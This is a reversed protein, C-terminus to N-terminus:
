QSALAGNAYYREDAVATMSGMLIGDHDYLHLVGAGDGGVGAGGGAALKNNPTIRGSQSSTFLEPGQEGVLYVGGAKVRGGGALLGDLGKGPKSSGTNEHTTINRIFTKITKGNLRNLRSEVRNAEAIAQPGGLLKVLTRLEKPTLDYQRKLKRINDSTPKFGPSSIKTQVAPPLSRLQKNFRATQPVTQLLMDRIGGTAKATGTLAAATRPLVKNLDGASLGSKALVKNYEAWGQTQDKVSIKALAADLAKVNAVSKTLGDGGILGALKQDLGSFVGGFKQAGLAAGTDHKVSHSTGGVLLSTKKSRPKDFSGLVGSEKGRSGIKGIADQVQQSLALGMAVEIAVLGGSAVKSLKGGKGGTVVGGGGPGGGAGGTFGKNTVFVPVPGGGLGGSFGKALGGGGLGALSRIGKTAKLVKSVAFAALAVEAAAKKAPGPLDNFFGIVKGGIRAIDKGASVVDGLTDALKGGPGTGKQMGTVFKAIAPAAKNTFFKAAKDVVPLLATGITEELNQWAVRAKDGATVQAKASGGFESNLEKLILKQAGLINGTKVMKTIVAKQKDSFTVGVRSLATMGKIPDNLAKGFKIAAQKPDEGMAVSMDVLTRTAQDFIKNGKGAENRINKFTLLMNQGSQIVEDDIGVKKSLSTALHGVQGATVKAAGGTSKIVAATQAGVKQAERAEGLSSKLFGGVFGGVLLTAGAAIAGGFRRGVTKGTKDVDGGVQSNLKSGFGRASPLVTVYASGVEAV